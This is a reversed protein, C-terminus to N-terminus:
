NERESLDKTVEYIVKYDVFGVTNERCLEVMEGMTLNEYSSLFRRYNLYTKKEYDKLWPAVSRIM